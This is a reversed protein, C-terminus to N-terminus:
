GRRLFELAASRAPDADGTPPDEVVRDPAIGDPAISRGKPTLWKAVTLKLDGGNPLETLTQVTGKGFTRSGFLTARGADQLAGAVIEAASASGHDVLVVLPVDKLIPRGDVAHNQRQGGRGEEIVAPGSTLFEGAVAVAGELFGGPNGRLDLVMGSPEPTLHPTLATVLDKDVDATFSRLAVVLIPGKGEAGAERDVTVPIVRVTARTITVSRPEGDGSQIVLTVRTGAPGRIRQVAADLTLGLADQADISRIRDGAKVGAGEAPSGPLPAIVVIARDKVGIEAGIGEVKGSLERDFAAAEDPGLYASYPDGLGSVLGALAGDFLTRDNVNANIFDRHIRDWVTPFLSFDAQNSTGAIREVAQPLSLVAGPKLLWATLGGAAFALILTLRTFKM